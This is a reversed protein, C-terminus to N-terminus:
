GLAKLNEVTETDLRVQEAPPGGVRVHERLRRQLANVMSGIEESQSGDLLNRREGPDGHLDYLEEGRWKAPIHGRGHLAVTVDDITVIYKHRGTRVSKAEYPRNLAESVAIRNGREGTNEWLPRLSTGQIEATRSKIGLVDLVTPMIDIMRVQASVRTGAYPQGPLKIILPVRVTEEYLSQGHKNCFSGPDHDAFEEGHDSTFVIPTDDYLDLQRLLRVFEGLWHEASRISGVYLADCVERTYCGREMLLEQYDRHTVQRQELSRERWRVLRAMSALAERLEQARVPELVQDLFVGELYPVHVEFTHLFLFFRRAGQRRTWAYIAEMNLPNLKFMSTDYLDFGQGFGIRPDMVGGATFAATTLGDDHLIDALTGRGEPLANKIVGERLDSELESFSEVVRHASPYLSTLMSMHAPKMWSSAAIHNEFLVGDAALADINPSVERDRYGYCNLRDARPTDSSILIVNYDYGPSTPERRQSAV